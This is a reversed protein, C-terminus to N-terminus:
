PDERLAAEAARRRFRLNVAYGALVLWVAAYAGIVYSWGGQVVGEAYTQALLVTM